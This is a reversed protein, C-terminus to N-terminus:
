PADLSGRDLSPHSPASFFSRSDDYIVMSYASGETTMVLFFGEEKLFLSSLLNPPFFIFLLRVPLPHSM